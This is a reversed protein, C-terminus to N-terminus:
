SNQLLQCLISKKNEVKKQNSFQYPNSLTFRVKMKGYIINNESFIYHTPEYINITQLEHNKKDNFNQPLQSVHIITSAIVPDNDHTNEKCFVFIVEKIYESINIQFSNHINKMDNANIVISQKIEAPITTVRIKIEDDCDFLDDNFDFSDIYINLGFM